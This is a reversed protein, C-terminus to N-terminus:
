VQPCAYYTNAPLPSPLEGQMQATQCYQGSWHRAVSADTSPQTTLAAPYTIAAGDIGLGIRYVAIVANSPPHIEFSVTMSQGPSLAVSSSPTQTVVAGSTADSPFRATLEIDPSFGSACEGGVGNPRGYLYACGNLANLSGVYPMLSALTVGFATLSRVQTTSTNCITIVFGDPQVVTRGQLPAGLVFSGADRLTIALPRTPLGDPLMYDANFGYLVSPKDILLDGVQTPAIMRPCSSASATPSAPTAAVTVVIPTRPSQSRTGSVPACGALALVFMLGLAVRYQVRRM